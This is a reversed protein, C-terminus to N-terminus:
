TRPVLLPSLGKSLWRWREIERRKYFTFTPPWPLSDADLICAKQCMLSEAIALLNTLKKALTHSSGVGLFQAFGIMARKPPLHTIRLPALCAGDGRQGGVAGTPPRHSSRSRPLGSPHWPRQGVHGRLRPASGPARAQQLRCAWTGHRCVPAHEADGVVRSPPTRRDCAAQRRWAEVCPRVPPVGTARSAHRLSHAWRRHSWVVFSLHRITCCNSRIITPAPEPFVIGPGSWAPQLIAMMSFSVNPPVQRFRPHMGDLISMWAASTASVIWVAADKPIVARISRRSQSRRVPRTQCRRSGSAAAPSCHRWVWGLVVTKLPSARKM